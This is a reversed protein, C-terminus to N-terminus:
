PNRWEDPRGRSTHRIREVHIAAKPAIKRGIDIAERQTSEVVSARASGPKRVAFDGAPRQEIYIERKAM